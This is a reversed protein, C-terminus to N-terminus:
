DAGHHRDVRVVRGFNRRHDARRDCQRDGINRPVARDAAHKDAIYVALDDDVGGELLALLALQLQCDGARALLDHHDFRARLFNGVVHHEVRMMFACSAMLGSTSKM